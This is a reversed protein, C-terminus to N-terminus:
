PLGVSGTFAIVEPRSDRWHSFMACLDCLGCLPFSPYALVEPSRSSKQAPIVCSPSPMAVTCSAVSPSSLYALAEPSRSPKQAPIVGFLSLM